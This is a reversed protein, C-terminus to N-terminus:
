LNKSNVCKRTFLKREAEGTEPPFIVMKLIKGIDGM